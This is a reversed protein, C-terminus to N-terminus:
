SKNRQVGRNSLTFGGFSVCLVGMKRRGRLLLVCCQVTRSQFLQASLDAGWGGGHGWYRLGEFEQAWVIALEFLDIIAHSWSLVLYPNITSGLLCFSDWIWTKKQKKLLIVTHAYKLSHVSIHSANMARFQILCLITWLGTCIFFLDTRNFRNSIDIYKNEAAIRHQHPTLAPWSWSRPSPTDSIGDKLSGPLVPRKPVRIHWTLRSKVDWRRSIWAKNIQM